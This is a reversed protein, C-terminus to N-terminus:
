SSPVSRSSWSTPCVRPLDSDSAFFGATPEGVNQWPTVDTTM